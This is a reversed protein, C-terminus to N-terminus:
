GRKRRTIGAPKAPPIDRYMVARELFKYGAQRYFKQASKNRHRVQLELANIGLERCFDEIEYLALSGIGEGRCKGIVYLDTLMGEMGGYELDYNYTLIAYGVPKKGAELLLAKGLSPDRLLKRLAPGTASANFRIRDSRYFERIFRLLVRYDRPTCTRFSVLM